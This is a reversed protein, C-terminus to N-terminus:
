DLEFADKYDKALSMDQEEKFLLCNEVVLVDLNTGMFCSFADEPTCVIPEGRVNFSTNVLVSCGTRQKFAKLLKYYRPNTELHVTQVRASYDVHTVAPITSRPVNLKEIGFLGKEEETMSRQLEQKVEAVLLMYPSERDLEFWDSVDEALVSPAFPRFSERFKVKLNLKKQMTESRPDALISRGGLARPGFEMQGQFWGVAKEAALANATEHIMGDESLPHIVAGAAQLRRECEAPSFSPGLYSGQMTDQGAVTTRPQKAYLYYAALAAGLSGGADGAAPQIWIREFSGDRLINGNAVCNLAVGGALCLNGHPSDKALNRTIQLVIEETVSQVSAALDMHKQTLRDEPTRRPGEFLEDFKDNTMTLGTCYNFYEQNLRYSGDPKLDVLHELIREAYIPRGYPALGMVKYEGSNVKFGTYYTFAAYLMGLSHPFHLEKTITLQNSNGKAVTTTASEGVGDLTLVTAETFPSPFFASAAHSLHHESFLLRKADFSGFTALADLITGKQFLKNTLWLPIAKAFSTYGSPAFGLYTKVLRNFKRLPKEHFVVYDLEHLEIEAQKLCSAIANFPFRLDHKIRTFREEQAAAVIKGNIVIAAASDHYFASIGLIKM